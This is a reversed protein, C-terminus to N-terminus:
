EPILHESEDSYDTANEEAYLAKMQFLDPNSRQDVRNILQYYNKSM